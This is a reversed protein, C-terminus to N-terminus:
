SYGVYNFPTIAQLEAKVEAAVNLTDIFAHMREPTMAESTRTLEKLAEYPNPFAERRLVCQVAEAVVAWNRELDATIADRNVILKEVGRSISAM